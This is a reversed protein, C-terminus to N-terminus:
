PSLRLFLNKAEKIRVMARNAGVDLERVSAEIGNARVGGFEADVVHM